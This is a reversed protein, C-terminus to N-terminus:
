SEITMKDLFIKDEKYFYRALRQASRDFYFQNSRNVNNVMELESLMKTKKNLQIKGMTHEKSVFKYIVVTEDEYEKLLLVFAGM